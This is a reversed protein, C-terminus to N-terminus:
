LARPLNGSRQSCTLLPLRQSHIRQVEPLWPGDPQLLMLQLIQWPLRDGYHYTWEVGVIYIRFALEDFCPLSLFRLRSNDINEDHQFESRIAYVGRLKLHSLEWNPNWNVKGCDQAGPKPGYIFHFSEANLDNRLSEGSQDPVTLSVMDVDTGDNVEVAGNRCEFYPVLDSLQVFEVKHANGRAKRTQLALRIKDSLLAITARRKIEEDSISKWTWCVRQWTSLDSLSVLRVIIFIIDTPLMASPNGQILIILNQSRTAARRDGNVMASRACCIYM